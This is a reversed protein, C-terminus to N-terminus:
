PNKSFVLGSAILLLGIVLLSTNVDIMSLLSVATALFGLLVLYIGFAQTKM